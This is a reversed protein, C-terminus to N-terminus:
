SDSVKSKDLNNRGNRSEEWYSNADQMREAEMVACGVNPIDIVYKGKDRGQNIERLITAAGDHELNFLGFVIVQQGRKFNNSM